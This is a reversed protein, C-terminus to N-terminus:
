SPVTPTFLLFHHLVHETQPDSEEGRSGGHLVILGCMQVQMSGSIHSLSEPVRSGVEAQMVIATHLLM